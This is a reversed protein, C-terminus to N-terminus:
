NDNLAEKLKLQEMENVLKKLLAIKRFKEGPFQIINFVERWMRMQDEIRFPLRSIHDDGQYVQLEIRPFDYNETPPYKAMRVVTLVGFPRVTPRQEIFLEEGGFQRLIKVGKHWLRMDM